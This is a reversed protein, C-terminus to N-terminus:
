PSRRRFRDTALLSAEPGLSHDLGPFLHLTRDPRPSSCRCPLRRPWNPPRRCPISRATSPWAATQQILRLLQPVLDREIDIEGHGAPNLLAQFRLGGAYSDRDILTSLFGQAGISGQTFGRRLAPLTLSALSRRGARGSPRLSSFSADVM